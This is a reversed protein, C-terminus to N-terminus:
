SPSSWVACDTLEIGEDSVLNIPCVKAILESKKFEGDMFTVNGNEDFETCRLKLENGGKVAKRRGFNTSGADDLFSPLAPSDSSKLASRENRWKDKWPRRWLPRTETSAYRSCSTNEPPYGFLAPPNRSALVSFKSSGRESCPRLFDLNLLSSEVSIQRCSNTALQRTASPLAHAINGLALTAGRCSFSHCATAGTFFCAQESHRLFRLVSFSPASVIPGPAPRMEDFFYPVVKITYNSM